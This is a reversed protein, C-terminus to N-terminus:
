PRFIWCASCVVLALSAGLISIFEMTPEQNLHRGVHAAPQPLRRDAGHDRRRRWAAPAPALLNMDLEYLLRRQEDSRVMSEIWFFCALRHGRTVPKVQHLSTGPYLVMHGAPLKVAQEGYTDAICLEGGDYEGPDALFVTCSVDTRVRQATGPLYRVSGDIHNGYYNSDGGYRNLRPPFM